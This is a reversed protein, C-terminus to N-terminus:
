ASAETGRRASVGRAILEAIREQVQAVYGLIVDDPEDGTGPFRMPEGLEVRVAVPLPVPVIWPTVPIYPVGFLRGLRYLNFITPVAEGGGIFAFPVIPSRTEMALRMFGTGFRVLSHRERYLKATGRAGEPFVMLLREEELLRKAHEPLGALHGARQAMAAAVPLRYIFKEAMGHALRPPDCEYFAAALVILGDLAWGGSHNGVLMARGRPPVHEIGQVSVRFYHRYLWRVVTFFRAVDEQKAGYPDIGHRSWPLEIRRVRALVDDDILLPM